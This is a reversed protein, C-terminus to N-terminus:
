IADTQIDLLYRPKQLRPHLAEPYDIPDLLDPAVIRPYLNIIDLPTYSWGVHDVPFLPMNAEPLITVDELARDPYPIPWESPRFGDVHSENEM